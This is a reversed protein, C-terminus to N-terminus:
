REGFDEINEQPSFPIRVGPSSAGVGSKSDIRTTAARRPTFCMGFLILTGRGVPVQVAQM